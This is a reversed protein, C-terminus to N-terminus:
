RLWRALERELNRVGSPAVIRGVVRHEEVVILTPLESVGFREALEPRRDVNVRMLRFTDHNRRRQLAQALYGEARRCRGSTPSYFFALIPRAARGDREAAPEASAEISM